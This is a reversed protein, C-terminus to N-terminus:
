KTEVERERERERETERERREEGQESPCRERQKRFAIGLLTTTELFLSSNLGL